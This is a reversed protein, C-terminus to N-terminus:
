PTQGNREHRHQETLLHDQDGQGVVRTALPSTSRTITDDRAISGDRGIYKGDAAAQLGRTTQHGLGAPESTMRDAM